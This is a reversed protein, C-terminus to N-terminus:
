LCGRKRIKCRPGGAPVCNSSRKGDAEGQADYYTVGYADLLEKIRRIEEDNVRVFLRRLKEMESQIEGSINNNSVDQIIDKLKM